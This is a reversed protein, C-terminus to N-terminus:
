IPPPKPKRFEAQYTDHEKIELDEVFWKELSVGLSSGRKIIEPSIEFSPKGKYEKFVEIEILDGYGIGLRKM